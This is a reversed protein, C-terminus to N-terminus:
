GFVFFRQLFEIGVFLPAIGVALIALALVVTVVAAARGERGSVIIESNEEATATEMSTSSPADEFYITKLVRGYYGFSVASGLVAVIVLWEWEMGVAGGFVLLKGWFGATLPIGTLSFMAVALAVGTVPNSRGFGAMGSISGDWDPRTCRMVEAALFAALVAAGYASLLLMTIGVVREGVTLGILAYGIQAIGSYALMRGYSRQRLAALNGFVISGTALVAWLASIRPVDIVIPFSGMQWSLQWAPVEPGSFLISSIVFAALVAAIKPAAALYGASPSPATEFADPAWSHFPFAGLKYAFAAIVLAMAAALPTSPVGSFTSRIALLSTGGGHLGVLIAMGLLFLGTAVSGQIVYKVAAEDARPTRAQAVLAYACLALSELAILTFVLDLSQALAVAAGTSLAVLAAALGGSPSRAFWAFGGLLAAASLAMIVTATGSFGGGGIMVDYALVNAELGYVTGASVGAGAVLATAAVLVATPRSVFSAILAALVGGGLALLVPTIVLLEQMEPSMESM